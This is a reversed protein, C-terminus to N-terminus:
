WHLPLGYNELISEQQFLEPLSQDLQIQGQDLILVRTTTKRIWNLDHSAILIVKLPLKLLIQALKKRWAPDLGSTPEDLILISPELALIAALATLRKQGGSLEHSSRHEYDILGFENLLFRAKEKAQKPSVQYNLLGFMVDELITPMFLQDEPNQFVFGINKRIEKINESELNLGEIIIEGKQPLKLGILNNLLTSKGAGTRGLLAVREGGKIKFSIEQLIPKNEYSFLLNDVMIISEEQYNLQTM